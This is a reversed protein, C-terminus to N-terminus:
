KNRKMKKGILIIKSKVGNKKEKGQKKKLSCMDNWLVNGKKHSFYKHTKLTVM